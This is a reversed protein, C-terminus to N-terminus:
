WCFAGCATSVARLAVAPHVMSLTCFSGALVTDRSTPRSPTAVQKDRGLRCALVRLDGELAERDVNDAQMVVRIMPDDLLEAIFDTRRTLM